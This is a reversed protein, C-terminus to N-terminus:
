FYYLKHNGYIEISFDKMEEREVYVDIYTREDEGIKEIRFRFPRNDNEDGYAQGFRDGDADRHDKKDDDDEDDRRMGIEYQRVVIRDGAELDLIQHVLDETEAEDEV